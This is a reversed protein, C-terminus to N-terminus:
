ADDEVSAYLYNTVNAQIPSDSLAFVNWHMKLEAGEEFTGSWTPVTAVDVTLERNSSFGSWDTAWGNTNDSYHGHAQAFTDESYVIGAPIEGDAGTEAFANRISLQNTVGFNDANVAGISGDAGQEFSEASLVLRARVGHIHYDRGATLTRAGTAKPNNTQDAGDSWAAGDNLVLVEDIDSDQVNDPVFQGSDSDRHVM